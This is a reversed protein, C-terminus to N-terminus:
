LPGLGFGTLVLLFKERPELLNQMSDGFTLRVTHHPFFTLTQIISGSDNRWFIKKKLISELEIFIMIIDPLFAYSQNKKFM